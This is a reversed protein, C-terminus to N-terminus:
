GPHIKSEHTVIGHDFALQISQRAPNSIKQFGLAQGDQIKVMVIALPSDLNYATAFDYENDEAYNIVFMSYKNAYYENFIQETLEIAQPCQYCIENNNFFIYIISKNYNQEEAAFYEQLPEGIPYDSGNFVLKACVPYIMIALAIIALFFRKM